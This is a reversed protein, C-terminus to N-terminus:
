GHAPPATTGRVILSTPLRTLSGRPQPKDILSFLREAALLGLDEAPQAVVCLAPSMLRGWRSDDFGVISLADPVRLGAGHAAKLAGATTENNFCFLATPRRDPPLNLLKSAAAFGQAESHDNAHVIWADDVPLDHDRMAALYGQLREQGTTVRQRGAVTAIREHGLGILHETAQHSGMVNDALVVHAGDLGSTRDVEVTPVNWRALNSGTNETPVILLGELQHSQLTGLYRAEKDSDEDTSCIIATYGRELAAAQVATAVTAHFENKLDTVLVGVIRSSSKKLGRAMQNPRYNLKKAAKRVRLLTAPALRSPDSLARSVTSPSVDALSAVDKLTAAKAFTPKVEEDDPM